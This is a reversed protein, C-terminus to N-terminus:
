RIWKCEGVMGAHFFRIARNNLQLEIQVSNNRLSNFPISADGEKIEILLPNNCGSLQDDLITQSVIFSQEFQDLICNIQVVRLSISKSHSLWSRIM